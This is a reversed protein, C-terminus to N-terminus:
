LSKTQINSARRTGFRGGRNGAVFQNLRQCCMLQLDMVSIGMIFPAVTKVDGPAIIPKRSM